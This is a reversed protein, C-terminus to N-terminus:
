TITDAHRPCYVRVAAVALAAAQDDTWGRANKVILSAAVLDGKSSHADLVQCVAHGDDIVGARDDTPTGAAQLRELFQEDHSAANGASGGDGSRGPSAELTPEAGRMGYPPACVEAAPRQLAEQMVRCEEAPSPPTPQPDAACGALVLPILLASILLPTRM